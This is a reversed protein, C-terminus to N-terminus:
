SWRRLSSGCPAARRTTSTSSRRRAPSRTASWAGARSIRLAARRAPDPRHRRQAPASARGQRSRRQHRRTCSPRRRPSRATARREQRGGRRYLDSKGRRHGQLVPSRAPRSPPPSHSSSMVSSSRTSSCPAEEPHHSLLFGGRSELGSLTAERDTVVRLPRRHRREVRERAARRRSQADHRHEPGQAPPPWRPGPAAPVDRLAHAPGLRRDSPRLVEPRRRDPLSRATPTTSATSCTRGARARRSIHLDEMTVLETVSFCDHVEFMSVENRPNKIGAEEYAKKSAIRTTHFTAATGRTTARSPVTRSRSSCRRSASSTRGQRAGQRDGAHDRHGRGCRGVRRLLRVPRAALRDDARQPHHGDRRGEPSPGEPEQRREPPEEVLRPRDGEQPGDGSVGHATMYATALQAFNGPATGSASWLAQLPGGRGGPLGGYGTDKLKEVGLALAFDAAGSAVAYCAGRFAETGSACMNEVHTVPINPLRLTTSLPIGSKGVHSRTSRPRSGPAAHLQKATSAPTPSPMGQVAELMLEEAGSDWREGFKSCGMGLIAVKDKIGRAMAPRRTNVTHVGSFGGQGPPLRDLGSGGELLLALLRRADHDNDRIRFTMRMKAGVKVQEKDSDTFDAMFRGGEPFTIMGYYRRRTRRISWRSRRHVVDREGRPGAM